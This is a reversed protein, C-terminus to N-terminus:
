IFLSGEWANPPSAIAANGVIGARHDAAIIDIQNVLASDKAAEVFVGSLLEIPLSKAELTPCRRHCIPIVKENKSLVSRGYNQFCPFFKFFYCLAFKPIM